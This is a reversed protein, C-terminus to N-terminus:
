RRYVSKNPRSRVHLLSSATRRMLIEAFTAVSYTIQKILLLM